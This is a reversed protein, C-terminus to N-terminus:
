CPVPQEFDISIELWQCLPIIVQKSVEATANGCIVAFVSSNGSLEEDTKLM